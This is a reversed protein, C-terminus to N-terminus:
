EGWLWDNVGRFVRVIWPARMARACTRCVIAPVNNVRVGVLCASCTVRGDNMCVGVHRGCVLTRCATCCYVDSLGRPACSCQLAPGAIIRELTVYRRDPTVFTELAYTFSIVRGDLLTREEIRHIVRGPAAMTPMPGVQQGALMGGNTTLQSM